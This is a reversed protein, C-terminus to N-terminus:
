FTAPSVKKNLIKISKLQIEADAKCLRNRIVSLVENPPTLGRKSVDYHSFIKWESISTKIPRQTNNMRQHYRKVPKYDKSNISTEIEGKSNLYNSKIYDLCYDFKMQSALTSCTRISTVDWTTTSSTADEIGKLIVPPRSNTCSSISKTHVKADSNFYQSISNGINVNSVTVDKIANIDTDNFSSHYEYKSEEVSNKSSINLIPNTCNSM